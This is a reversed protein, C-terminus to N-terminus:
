MTHVHVGHTHLYAHMYIYTHMSAHVCVYRDIYGFMGLWPKFYQYYYGRPAEANVYLVCICCQITLCWLGGNQQLCYKAFELNATFVVPIFPGIWYINFHPYKKHNELYYWLTDVTPNIQLVLARTFM